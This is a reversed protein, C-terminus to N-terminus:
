FVADEPAEDYEILITVKGDLFEGAKQAADLGNIGLSPSGDVPFMANLSPHPKGTAKDRWVWDDGLEATAPGTNRMYDVRAIM